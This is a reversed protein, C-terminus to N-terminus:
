EFIINDDTENYMDIDMLIDSLEKIVTKIRRCYYKSHEKLTPEHYNITIAKIDITEYQIIFILYVNRCYVCKHYSKALVNTTDDVPFNILVNSINMSMVQTILKEICCCGNEKM